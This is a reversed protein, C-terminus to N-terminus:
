TLMSDIAATPNLLFTNAVMLVVPRGALCSSIDSTITSFSNNMENLIRQKVDSHTEPANFATYSKVSPLPSSDSTSTASDMNGFITPLDRGFSVYVRAASENELKERTAYYKEDTFDEDSLHSSRLVYLLTNLDMCVHYSSSSHNASIWTITQPLSQFKVGDLDVTNNGLCAQM